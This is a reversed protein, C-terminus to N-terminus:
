WIIVSQGFMLDMLSFCKEKPWAITRIKRRVYFTWITEGAPSSSVMTVGYGWTAAKEALETLPLDAWQGTFLTVPRSM